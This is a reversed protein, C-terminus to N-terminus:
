FLKSLVSKGIWLHEMIDRPIKWESILIEFLKIEKVDVSWDSKIIKSIFDLVEYLEERFFNEYAFKADKEFHSFNLKDKHIAINHSEKPMAEWFKTTLFELIVKKENDDIQNDVLMFSILIRYISEYKNM